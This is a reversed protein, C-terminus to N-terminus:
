VLVPLVRELFARLRGPDVVPGLEQGAVVFVPVRAGYRAELEPDATVDVRSLVPTLEGRSARGVLETALMAEADDCLQCQARRYITLRPRPIPHSM